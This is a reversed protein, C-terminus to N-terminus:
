VEQKQKEELNNFIKEIKDKFDTEEDEDSIIIGFSEKAANLKNGILWEVASIRYVDEIKKDLIIRKLRRNAITGTINGISWLAQHRVVEAGEKDSVVEHLFPVALESGILGLSYCANEKVRWSFESQFAFIVFPVISKEKSNGMSLLCQGREVENVSQNYIYSLTPLSIRSDIHGLLEISVRKLFDDGLLACAALNPWDQMSFNMTSRYLEYVRYENLSEISVLYRVYQLFLFSNYPSLEWAEFPDQPISNM